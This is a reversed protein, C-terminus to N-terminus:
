EWCSSRFGIFAVTKAARPLHEGLSLFAGENEVYHLLFHNGALFITGRGPLQSRALGKTAQDCGINMLVILVLLAIRFGRSRM